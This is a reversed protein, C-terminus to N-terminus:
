GRIKVLPENSEKEIIIVAKGNNVPICYPNNQRTIYNIDLHKISNESMDCAKNLPFLFMNYEPYIDIEIGLESDIGRFRNSVNSFCVKKIGSPLVVNFESSKVDPALWAKDVNDQLESLFIGVKACDQISLFHRIAIFAIVIFFVILIISFIMGFSMGFIEQSRKSKPLIRNGRKKMYLNNM